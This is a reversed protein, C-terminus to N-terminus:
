VIPWRSLFENLTRELMKGRESPEWDQGTLSIVIEDGLITEVLERQEKSPAQQQLLQALLASDHDGIVESFLSRLNDSMLEVVSSM